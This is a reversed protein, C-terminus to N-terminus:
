GDEVSTGYVLDPVEVVGFEGYVGHQRASRILELRYRCTLTGVFFAGAARRGIHRELWLFSELGYDAVNRVHRARAGISPKLRRTARRVGPHVHLFCPPALRLELQSDSYRSKRAPSAKDPACWAHLPGVKRNYLDRDRFLGQGKLVLDVHDIWHAPTALAFGDHGDVIAVVKARRRLAQVACQMRSSGQAAELWKCWEACLLAVDAQDREALGYPNPMAALGLARPAFTVVDWEEILMPMDILWMNPSVACLAVCM